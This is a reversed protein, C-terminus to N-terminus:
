FNCAKNPRIHLAGPMGSYDDVAFAQYRLLDPWILNGFPEHNKMKSYFDRRINM